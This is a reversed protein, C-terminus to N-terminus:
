GCRCFLGVPCRRALLGPAAMIGTGDGKGILVDWAFKWRNIRPTGAYSDITGTVYQSFFSIWMLSPTPEHAM